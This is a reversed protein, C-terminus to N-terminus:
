VTDNVAGEGDSDDDPKTDIGWSRDGAADMNPYTAQTAAGGSHAFKPSRTKETPKGHASGMAVQINLLTPTIGYIPTILDSVICFAADMQFAFLIVFALQFALMLLGSEILMAIAVRFSQHTNSDLVPHTRRSTSLIRSVILLTALANVVLSISYTTIGTLMYLRSMDGTDTTGLPSNFLGVLVFGGGLTILALFGPVAVVAWRRDWIIWCRYLLIMQALYDTITFIVTSGLDLTDTNSDAIDPNDVDPVVFFYAAPIDFCLSLTCLVFLLIQALALPGDVVRRNRRLLVLYLIFLVMYIGYFIGELVVGLATADVDTFAM